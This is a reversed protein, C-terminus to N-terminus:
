RRGIKDWDRRRHRSHRSFLSRECWWPAITADFFEALSSSSKETNWWQTAAPAVLWNAGMNKKVRSLLLLLVQPLHLCTWENSVNRCYITARILSNRREVFRGSLPAPPSSPVFCIILSRVDIRKNALPFLLPSFGFGPDAHAHARSLIVLSVHHQQQTHLLQIVAAATPGAFTM